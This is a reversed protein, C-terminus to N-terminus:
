VDLTMVNIVKDVPDKGLQPFHTSQACVCLPIALLAITFHKLM